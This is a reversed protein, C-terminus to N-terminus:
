RSQHRCPGARSRPAPSGAVLVTIRIAGGEAAYGFGFRAVTPLGERAQRRAGEQLLRAADAPRGRHLLATALRLLGPMRLWAAPEAARMGTLRDLERVADAWRQEAAHWNARTAALAAQVRGDKADLRALADHLRLHESLMRIRVPFDANSRLVLRLKAAALDANSWISRATYWFATNAGGAVLQRGDPSFALTRVDGLEVSGPDLQLLERRTDVNWLRVTRDEGGSALTRGDPAFAVAEVASSHGRLTALLKGAAVDWLHVNGERSATALAKGDPSFAVGDVMGHRGPLGFQTENDPNRLTQAKQWTRASWLIATGDRSGSALLTGDRSFDLSLCYNQHGDLQRVLRRTAVEWVKLPSPTLAPKFRNKDGFGAVLYKGDPSFALAAVVGDNPDANAVGPLRALEKGADIDWLSVYSVNPRGGHGVALLRSDTPSFAVSFVGSNDGTSLKRVLRGTAADWLRASRDGDAAVWQGDPSFRAVVSQERSALEQPRIAVGPNELDWVGATRDAGTTVLWKGDSSFLVAHIAGRHGKLTRLPASKGTLKRADPWIKIIGEADATALKVGDGAFALASIPSAHAYPHAAIQRGTATDYVAVAGGFLTSVAISQGDPSLASARWTTGFGVDRALPTVTKTTADLRLVRFLNGTPGYGVCALTLGDASVTLSRLGDFDRKASAIVQGGAASVWRVENDVIVLRGGDRSFILGRPYNADSVSDISFTEKGTATAFVHVRFGVAV